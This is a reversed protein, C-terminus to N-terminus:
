LGQINVHVTLRLAFPTSAYGMSWDDLYFLGADKLLIAEGCCPCEAYFRNEELTRIIEKADKTLSMVNGRKEM